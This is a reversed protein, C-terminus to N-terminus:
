PIGSDDIETGLLVFESAMVTRDSCQIPSRPDPEILKRLAARREM